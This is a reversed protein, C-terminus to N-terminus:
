KMPLKIVFEAGECQGAKGNLRAEKTEVKIEGGHAKIIDYSLGLELIKLQQFLIAAVDEIEGSRHMALSRSRIKELAAEIETERKSAELKKELEVIRLQVNEVQNTM